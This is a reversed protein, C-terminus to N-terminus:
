FSADGADGERAVGERTNDLFHGGAGIGRFAPHLRNGEVADDAIAELAQEKLNAPIETEKGKGNGGMEYTYAKMRVLDIVGSLSKEAGIALEIPIVNRGFSKELSELVRVDDDVVAVTGKSKSM